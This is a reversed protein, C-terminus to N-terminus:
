LNAQINDFVFRAHMTRLFSSTRSYDRLVVWLLVYSFPVALCPEVLEKNMNGERVWGRHDQWICV